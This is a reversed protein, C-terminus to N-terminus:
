KSKLLYRDTDMALAFAIHLYYDLREAHRSYEVDWTGKELIIQKPIAFM